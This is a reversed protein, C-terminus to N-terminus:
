ILRALMGVELCGGMELILMNPNMAWTHQPTTAAKHVAMIPLLVDPGTLTRLPPVALM